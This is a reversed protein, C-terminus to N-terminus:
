KELKELKHILDRESRQLKGAMDRLQELEEDIDAMTIEYKDIKAEISEGHRPNDLRRNLRDRIKVMIKHLNDKKAQLEDHTLYLM